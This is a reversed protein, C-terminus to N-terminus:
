PIEGLGLLARGVGHAAQEVTEQAEECSARGDGLLGLMSAGPGLILWVRQEFQVFVRQGALITYWGAPALSGASLPHWVLRRVMHVACVAESALYGLTVAREPHRGHQGRPRAMAALLSRAEDTLRLPAAYKRKKQGMSPQLSTM